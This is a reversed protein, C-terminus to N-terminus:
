AEDYVGDDPEIDGNIRIDRCEGCDGFEDLDWEPCVGGCTNCHETM